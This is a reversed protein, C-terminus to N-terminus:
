SVRKPRRVEEEPPVDDAPADGNAVREPDPEATFSVYVMGKSNPKAKRIDVKAGAQRGARRLERDLLAADSAKDGNAVDSVPPSKRAEGSEMIETIMPLYVSPESRRAAPKSPLADIKSFAGADVTM